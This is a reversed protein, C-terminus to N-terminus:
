IYKYMHFMLYKDCITDSSANFADVEGLPFIRDEIRREIFYTLSQGLQSSVCRECATWKDNKDTPIWASGEDLRTTAGGNGLAGPLPQDCRCTLSLATVQMLQM